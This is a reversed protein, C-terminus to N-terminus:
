IYSMNGRNFCAIVSALCVVVKSLLNAFKVAGWVCYCLVDIMVNNSPFQWQGQWSCTHWKLGAQLQDTSFLDCSYDQLNNVGSIWHLWKNCKAVNYRQMTKYKWTPSVAGHSHYHICCQKGKRELKYLKMNHLSMVARRLLFYIKTKQLCWGRHERGDRPLCCSPTSMPFNTTGGM